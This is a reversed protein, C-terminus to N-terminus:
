AAGQRPSQQAGDQTAGARAHRGLRERERLEEGDLAEKMKIFQADLLSWIKVHEGPRWLAMKFYPYEELYMTLYHEKHALTRAHNHLRDCLKILVADGGKERIRWYTNLHRQYRNAGPRDTVAEVLAAVDEGFVHKLTAVSVDTDEVVDHLWAASTIHLREVSDEPYGCHFAALSAVVRLHDEISLSGHRQNGHHALAYVEALATGERVAATMGNEAIRIAADAEERSDMTMLDSGDHDMVVYGVRNGM